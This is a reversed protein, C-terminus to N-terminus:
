DRRRAPFLVFSALLVFIGAIYWRADGVIFYVVGGALAAGEGLAWAIISVTRRREETPRRNGFALLAALGLVAVGMWITALTQVNSALSPDAPPTPGSRRQWWIVGGFLLMGALMSLRIISLQATQARRPDAM